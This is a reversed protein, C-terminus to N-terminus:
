TSLLYLQASGVCLLLLYYCRIVCPFFLPASHFNGNVQATLKCSWIVGMPNNETGDGLSPLCQLTPDGSWTGPPCQHCVTGAFPHPGPVRCWASSARVQQPLMAEERHMQGDPSWEKPAIDSSGDM